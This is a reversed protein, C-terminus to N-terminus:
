RNSGPELGSPRAPRELLLLTADRYLTRAYERFGVREALRLSAVNEPAIMCVTRVGVLHADSWALAAAVAEAGFGRGWASPVFAWGVEPAGGFSPEIPRHFDALGVEGVFAGTARERVAWFGFGLTAWLGAYTLVRRWAAEGTAPQGGIFRTVQPDAWM